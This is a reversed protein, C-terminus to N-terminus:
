LRDSDDDRAHPRGLALRLAASTEQSVAEPDDILVFGTDGQINM